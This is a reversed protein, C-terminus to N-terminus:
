GEDVDTVAEHHALKGVILLLVVSIIAAVAALAFALSFNGSVDIVWGSIVPSIISGVGAFLNWLSFVLGTRNGPFYDSVSAAYIPWVAGYGLGFIVTFVSLIMYHYFFVMGLCGFALLTSAVIMMQIRGLRDSLTGLVLKGTIGAIGIITILGTAAQFSLKLEQFAYTTLFTFPVLILFGVLLYSVGLLWFRANKFTNLYANTVTERNGALLRTEPPNTNHRPNKVLALNLATALFAFLGLILWGARWDFLGIILPMLSSAAIIGIASGAETLTLATGRRKAGVCRNILVTFPVWCASAGVGTVMFFLSANVVSTSFSMLVTGAGVFLTALTVIIRLNFRDALVGIFVVAITLAAFYASYICGAETNSIQFEELMYPLLMGYSYRIAFAIFLTFFGAFIVANTRTSM